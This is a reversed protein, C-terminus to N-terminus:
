YSAHDCSELSEKLLGDRYLSMLSDESKIKLNTHCKQSFHYKIHSVIVWSPYLFFSIFCQECIDVCTKGGQTFEANDNEFFPWLIFM